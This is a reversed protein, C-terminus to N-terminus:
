IRPGYRVWWHDKGKFCGWPSHGFKKFLILAVTYQQRPTAYKARKAKIWKPKYDTWTETYFGFAGEYDGGDHKWNPPNPYSGSECVGLNYWKNPLWPYLIKEQSAESKQIFLIFFILIFIIFFLFKSFIKKNFFM